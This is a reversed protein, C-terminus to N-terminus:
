IKTANIVYRPLIFVKREVGEDGDLVEDEVDEEIEERPISHAAKVAEYMDAKVKEREEEEKEDLCGATLYKLYWSTCIAVLNHEIEPQPIEWRTVLSEIDVRGVGHAELEERWKEKQAEESGFRYKFTLPIGNFTEGIEAPVTPDSFAVGYTPLMTAVNAFIDGGPSLLHAINGCANGVEPIWNFVLSTFILDIQGEFAHLAAPLDDWPRSFDALIYEMAHVPPPTVRGFIPHHHHSIPNNLHAHRSHHTCYEIMNPDIDIAM